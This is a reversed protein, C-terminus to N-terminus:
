TRVSTVQRFVAAMSGAADDWSHELSHPPPAPQSLAIELGNAVGEPTPEVYTTTDGGAERLEPSDTTIVRCGLARAEVVPMGYGEYVSPFVLADALSYLTVLTADDVYGLPKIWDGAIMREISRNGKNWEEAGVMVLNYDVLRDRSKLAAVAAVVSVLNKRPARTGVTLLYPQRVGLVKLARLANERNIVPPFVPVAPLAIADARRGLLTQMRMATGESIAVVKTANRVDDDFWRLHALRTLPPLTEPVLVHNFDYVTTVCPVIKSAGKPVLTNPTWLVDLADSQLLRGMRYHIWHPTPLHSWISHRDFRVSWRESPLTVSCYRRAYLLFTADPMAKDLPALIGETYRGVGTMGAHLRSADIGIKM